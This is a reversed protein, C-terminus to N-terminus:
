GHSNPSGKVTVVLHPPSPLNDGGALFDHLLIGRQHSYLTSSDNSPRDRHCGFCQCRKELLQAPGHEIVFVPAHGVTVQQVTEDALPVLGGEPRQQAPM